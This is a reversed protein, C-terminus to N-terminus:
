IEYQTAFPFFKDDKQQQQRRRLVYRWGRRRRPPLLILLLFFISLRKVQSKEEEKSREREKCRKWSARCLSFALFYFFIFFKRTSPSDSFIRSKRAATSDHVFFNEKGKSSPLFCGVFPMLCLPNEDKNHQTCTWVWSEIDQKEMSVFQNGITKMGLGVVFLFEKVQFTRCSSSIFQFYSFYKEM